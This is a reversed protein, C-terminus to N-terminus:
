RVGRQAFFEKYQMDELLTHRILWDKLYDVATESRPRARRETANVLRELQGLLATHASKHMDFRPYSHSEMLAEEESFHTRAFDLVHRKERDHGEVLGTDGIAQSLENVLAFLTRHQDDLHAVDVRFSESWEFRFGARFSRLRRQFAELLEWQVIPIDTLVESPVVLYTCDVVARAISLLPASSVIREEGWFGGPRLVEILQSGVAIDLEGKALVSLALGPEPPAVSGAPLHREEMAAAVRNLVSATTVGSFAPCMSLVEHFGTPERCAGAEGNRALFAQYTRAPISVATVM